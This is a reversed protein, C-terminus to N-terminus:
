CAGILRRFSGYDRGISNAVKHPIRESWMYQNSIDINSYQDDGSNGDIDRTLFRGLDPAGTHDVVPRSSIGFVTFEVSRNSFHLFLEDQHAFELGITGL